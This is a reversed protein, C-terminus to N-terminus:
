EGATAFEWVFNGNRLVEYSDKPIEEGGYCVYAINKDPIVKAPVMDGEHFARGAYIPSGDADTGARIACDYPFAQGPSIHQWCHGPLFPPHLHLRYFCLIRNTM